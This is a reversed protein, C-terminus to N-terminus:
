IDGIIATPDLFLLTGSFAVSCSDHLRRVLVVVNRANRPVAPVLRRSLFCGAKGPRGAEGAEEPREVDGARRGRPM